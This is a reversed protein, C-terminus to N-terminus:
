LLDFTIMYIFSKILFAKIKDLNLFYLLIEKLHFVAHFNQMRIIIKNNVNFIVLIGPINELIRTRSDDSIRANSQPYLNM